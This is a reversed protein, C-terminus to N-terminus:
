LRIPLGRRTSILSDCSSHRISRSWVAPHFEITASKDLRGTVLPQLLQSLVFDQRHRSANSLARTTTWKAAFISGKAGHSLTRGSLMWAVQFTRSAAAM